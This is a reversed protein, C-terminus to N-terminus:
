IMPLVCVCKRKQAAHLLFSNTINKKGGVDFLSIKLLIQGRRWSQFCTDVRLPQRWGSVISHKGPNQTVLRDVTIDPFDRSGLIVRSM